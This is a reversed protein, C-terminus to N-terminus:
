ADGKGGMLGCALYLFSDVDLGLMPAWVGACQSAREWELWAHLLSTKGVNRAARM